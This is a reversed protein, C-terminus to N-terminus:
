RTEICFQDDETLALYKDDGSLEPREVLVDLALGLRSESLGLDASDLRGVLSDRDLPGDRLEDFAYLAIQTVTEDDVPRPHEFDVLYGHEGHVLSCEDGVAEFWLTTKRAYNLLEKLRDEALGEYAPLGRFLEPAEVPANSSVLIDLCDDLIHEITDRGGFAEEDLPEIATTTPDIVTQRQR